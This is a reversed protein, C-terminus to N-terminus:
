ELIPRYLVADNVLFGVRLAFIPEEDPETGGLGLSQKLGTPTTPPTRRLQTSARSKDVLPPGGAGKTILLTGPSHAVRGVSPSEYWFNTGFNTIPRITRQVFQTSAVNPRLGAEGVLVPWRVPETSVILNVWAARPKGSLPRPGKKSKSSAQQGPANPV